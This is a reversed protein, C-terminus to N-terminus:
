NLSPRALEFHEEVSQHAPVTPRPAFGAPVILMSCGSARLIKETVSGHVWRNVGSRGHTAMVILDVGYSAAHDLIRSAPSGSAAVTKLDSGARRYDRAIRELYTEVARYPHQLLREGLGPELLDLQRAMGEDMAPDTVSRFLTVPCDLRAALEIGPELARESLESGDLTILVNRIPEESRVILVPCRAARLVRDAVSGMMWRTFGSYGHSSMAILDIGEQSATDVIVSAPDGESLLIRLRLSPDPVQRCISQLYKRAEHSNRELAQQPWLLGYDFLGSQGPEFMTKAEPVRLLFLEHHPATALRLAPQLAREALGSGDLPVLIREFM